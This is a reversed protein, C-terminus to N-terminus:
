GKCPVVRASLTIGRVRARVRGETRAGVRFRVRGM